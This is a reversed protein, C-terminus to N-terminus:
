QAAVATVVGLRSAIRELQAAEEPAVEGDAEAIAQLYQYLTSRGEEALVSHLLSALDEVSPLSSHTEISRNLAQADFGDFMRSGITVAVEVEAPEVKGDAVIMKAALGYAVTLPDVQNPQDPIGADRLQKRVGPLNKSVFVGRALGYLILFPNILLATVSFWGILLSLGVEKFISKRVCNCCGIFRKSGFQFALIFGRVYPVTAVTELKAGACHPCPYGIEESM